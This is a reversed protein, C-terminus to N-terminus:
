GLAKKIDLLIKIKLLWAIIKRIPNNFFPNKLYCLVGYNLSPPDPFYEPLVKLFQFGSKEYFRLEPDYAVGRHKLLLYERATSSPHKKKYRKFAPIRAGLFVGKINRKVAETFAFSILLEGLHASRDTPLVSLNVGYIFSGNPQHTKKIFGNDTIEAWSFREGSIDHIRQASVYGIIKRQQKHNVALIINGQPHMTIRSQIQGISAANDGWVAEEVERIKAVDEQTAWFCYNFAFARKTAKAIRGLLSLAQLIQRKM